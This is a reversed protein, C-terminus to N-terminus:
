METNTLKFTKPINFYETNKYTGAISIYHVRNDSAKFFYEDIYKGNLYYELRYAPYKDIKDNVLSVSIGEAERSKKLDNAIIYSETVNSDYAYLTVIFSTLYSYKFTETSEPDYYKSWGKPVKIYGYEETGVFGTKNNSNYNYNNYENDDYDNYNYEYYGNDDYQETETLEMIISNIFIFPLIFIILLIKLFVSIISIVLGPCTEKTRNKYKTGLVIGVIGFILGFFISLIGLVLSGNKLNDYEKNNKHDKKENNNEKPPNVPIIMTKELDENEKKFENGCNGCYKSNPYIENGCKPCKKNM